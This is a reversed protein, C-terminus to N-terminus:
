AIGADSLDSLMHFNVRYSIWQRVAITVTCILM